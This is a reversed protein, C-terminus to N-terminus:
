VFHIPWIFAIHVSELPKRTCRCSFSARKFHLLATVCIDRKRTQLNNIYSNCCCCCCCCCDDDDGVAADVAVVVVAVAIRIIGFCNFCVGAHSELFPIKGLRPPRRTPRPPRTIPKIPKM